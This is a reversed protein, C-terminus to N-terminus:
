FSWDYIGPDKTRSSRLHLRLLGAALDGAGTKAEYYRDGPERVFLGGEASEVWFNEVAKRAYERAADLYRRERTLDYLDLNLNLAFGAGEVSVNEPMPSSQAIRAIRQAMELFVPDKEFRAFYAAIRGAPLISPEGYAFNWPQALADGAPAGDLHVSGRYGGRGADYAYRNYAKLFAVARDRLPAGAPHLRSAKLLWYALSAMGNTATKSAPRPDDICSLTLNTVPNRRSWYLDGVGLAWRLWREDGTRSYLFLFSYAFLGSHKIWPQGRPKQHGAVAWDAHRNFLSAPDDAYFHYRIGAIAREVARPDSDWLLPWPPTWGLLEHSRRERAVEDRFFDYYLHEGWAVLGTEPNQALGVFAREYERAAAAYRPDKTVASLVRFVQLTVADHYLNAGGVARDGSRVGAPPPVGERPVTLSRADIVAAWLPTPKPGYVDLGKNLLTDAFVRVYRLSDAGGAPFAAAFAVLFFALVPSPM